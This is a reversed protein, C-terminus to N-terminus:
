GKRIEIPQRERKRWAFGLLAGIPGGVALGGVTRTLTPRRSEYSGVYAPAEKTGLRADCATKSVDLKAVRAEREAEARRRKEVKRQEKNM